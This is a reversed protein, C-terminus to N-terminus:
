TSPAQTEPRFDEPRALARIAALALRAEKGYANFAADAKMRHTDPVYAFSIALAVATVNESTEAIVARLRDRETAAAARAAELRATEDREVQLSARLADREARLEDVLALLATVDRRYCYTWPSGPLLDGEPVTALKERAQQEATM